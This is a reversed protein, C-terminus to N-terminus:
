RERAPNTVRAPQGPWEKYATGAFDFLSRGATSIAAGQKARASLDADYGYLDLQRLRNGVNARINVLDDDLKRSDDRRIADFSDLEVGRAAAATIQSSATQEFRRVRESSQMAAEVEAAQRASEVQAAAAKSQAGALKYSSAASYLSAATSAAALAIKGIAM